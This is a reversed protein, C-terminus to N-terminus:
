VLGNQEMGNLFASRIMKMRFNILDLSFFNVLLAYIIRANSSHSVITLDNDHLDMKSAVISALRSSTRTTGSIRVDFQAERLLKLVSDKPLKHGYFPCVMARRNAAASEITHDFNEDVNTSTLSERHNLLKQSAV